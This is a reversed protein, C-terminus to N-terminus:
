RIGEGIDFIPPTIEQLGNSYQEEIQACLAGTHHQQLVTYETSIGDALPFGLMQKIQTHWQDFEEQSNFVYYKM